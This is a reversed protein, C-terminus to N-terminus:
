RSPHPSLWVNELRAPRMPNLVYGHVWPQRIEYTIPYYLFVWPADSV